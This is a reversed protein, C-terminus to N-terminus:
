GKLLILIDGLCKSENEKSNLENKLQYNETQLTQVLRDKDNNILPEFKDDININIRNDKIIKEYYKTKSLLEKYKLELEKLSKNNLELEDQLAIISEDRENLRSTLAIMIDRQKLLLHKYREVQLKEEQIYQKEKDLENLKDEYHKHIMREKEELLRQIDSTDNVDEEIKRGGVLLQSEMYKLKKHLTENEQEFLEYDKSRQELLKIALEKDEIAKRKEEELNSVIENMLIGKNHKHLQERLEM